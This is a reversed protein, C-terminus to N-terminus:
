EGRWGEIFAPLSPYAVRVTDDEHDWYVISNDGGVHFAFLDGNGVESFALLSNSPEPDHPHRESREQKFRHNGALIRETSWILSQFTEWEGGDEKEQLTVGNTQALLDRLEAPLTIRVIREVEGMDAPAAPPFFRCRMETDSVYREILEIWNM